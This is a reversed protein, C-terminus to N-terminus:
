NIDGEMPRIILEEMVCSSRLNWANILIEAVHDPNMFRSEPLSTGAWSHTLTAGPMVASVAIKHPMMELRLVKTFGLLGFKSICYSGGNVYATFSATSCMNYIYADNSRILAEQLFRTLYYPANLNVAIELEHVGDEEQLSQGPIFVGANNILVNVFPFISKVYDAFNEVQTKEAFDAKYIHINQGTIKFVESQLEELERANRSNTAIEFGLKAFSIVCSKGIGKTGGSIVAYKKM